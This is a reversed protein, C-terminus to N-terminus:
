RWARTSNAKIRMGCAICDFQEGDKAGAPLPPIQARHGGSVSSTFSAITEAYTSTPALISTGIGSDLFKSEAIRSRSTDVVLKENRAAKDRAAQLRQYRIWNALGLSEVVTHSAKPYKVLILDAYYRHPARDVLRPFSPAEFQNSTDVAPHQLANNLDVLCNLSLKMEAFVDEFEDKNL